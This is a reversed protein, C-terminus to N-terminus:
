ISGLIYSLALSRLFVTSFSCHFNTPPKFWGETIESEPADEENKVAVSPAEVNGIRQQHVQANRATVEQEKREM